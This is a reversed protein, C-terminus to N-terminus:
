RKKQFNDKLIETIRLIVFFKTRPAKLDKLIYSDNLTASTTPIHAVRLTTWAPTSSTSLGAGPPNDMFGYRRCIWSGPEVRLLYGFQPTAATKGAPWM